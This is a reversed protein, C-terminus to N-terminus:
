SRRPGARTWAPMHIGNPVYWALFRRTIGDGARAITPMTAELMPLALVAGAGGLFARRSIKFRKM